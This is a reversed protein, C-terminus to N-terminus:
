KFPLDDTIKFPNTSYKNDLKKLTPSNPMKLSSVFNNEKIKAIRDREAIEEEETQDHAKIAVFQLDIIDFYCHTAGRKEAEYLFGRTESIPMYDGIVDWQDIIADQIIKRM